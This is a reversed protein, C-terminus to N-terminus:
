EQYGPPHPLWGTGVEKDQKHQARQEHFARQAEVPQPQYPNRDRFGVEQHNELEHVLMERTTDRIWPDIRAVVQHNFFIKDNVVRFM